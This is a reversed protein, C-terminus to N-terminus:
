PKARPPDKEELFNGKVWVGAATGLLGSLIVGVFKVAEPGPDLARLHQQSYVTVALLIGLLALTKWDRLWWPIADDFTRGDSGATSM